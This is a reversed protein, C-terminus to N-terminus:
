SVKTIKVITYIESDGFSSAVGLGDPSWAGSVQHRIEFVNTSAVTFRGVINTRTQVADTNLSFESSGIVADSATTVNYLKAKHISPRYAPCSAEIDYTGVPLTIQNTALSAGSITNYEVTNLTRTQYVGSSSAGGSTGSSKVDKILIEYQSSAVVAADVYATTALKTSNDSPSQTPATPNGTFAPSALPAKGTEVTDVRGEVEDIAAQTDTATLGSTTNVYPIYSATLDAINAKETDLETLASQVNTSSLGGSPIFTTESATQTVSDLVSFSGLVTIDVQDGLTAGVTLVVTSGDTATYDEDSLEHGNLYVHVAGVAYGDTITFTTQGATATFNQINHNLLLSALAYVNSNNKYNFGAM